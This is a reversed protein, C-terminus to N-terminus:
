IFLIWIIKSVIHCGAHAIMSYRLGYKSYLYGFLIGIGGNLLICRLILLPSDGLIQFTTPLHLIAFMLTSTVNAILYTKNSPITKNKEFLKFLVFSVLSMFFLRLMVEEIVGGYLVGALISIFNPKSSYSDMITQELPGFIFIDPLIMTISSCLSIVLAIVLPKTEISIEDKWLNVKKGILIGLAGFILGYGAAQLSTILGLVLEVSLGINMEDIEDVILNKIDEPYSDLLYLGTFFGGILGILTFFLLTIWYKKIFEKM